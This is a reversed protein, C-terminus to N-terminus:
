DLLRAPIGDIGHDIVAQIEDSLSAAVPLSESLRHGVAGASDSSNDTRGAHKVYLIVARALPYDVTALPEACEAATHRDYDDSSLAAQRIVTKAKDPDVELLRGMESAYARELEVSYEDTKGVDNDHDGGLVLARGLFKIQEVSMAEFNFPRVDGSSEVASMYLPRNFAFLIM